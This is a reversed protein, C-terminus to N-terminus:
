RHMMGKLALYAVMGFFMSQLPHDQVYDLWDHGSKKLEQTGRDLMENVNRNGESTYNRM